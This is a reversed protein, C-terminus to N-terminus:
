RPRPRRRPAARRADHVAARRRDAAGVGIAWGPLGPARCRSSRGCARRARPPERRRPSRRRPHRTAMLAAGQPAVRTARAVHQDIRFVLRPVVSDIVFLDDRMMGNVLTEQGSSTSRTSPRCRATARAMRYLHPPRRRQDPEAAAGARREAPLPGRRDARGDASALRPPPAPYRFRVTYAMDPSPGLLPSWSSRMSHARQDGGDHQHDRRRCRSSSSGTAAATPPSRGPAATASRSM